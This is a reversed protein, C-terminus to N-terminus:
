VLPDWTSALSLHPAVGVASIGLPLDQFDAKCDDVLGGAFPAPSAEPDVPFDSGFDVLTGAVVHQRQSGLHVPTGVVPEVHSDAVLEVLNDVAPAVPTGVAFDMLTGVVLDMLTGVVLDMPTGVVFSVLTDVAPDFRFYSGPDLLSGVVPHDSLVDAFSWMSGVFDM